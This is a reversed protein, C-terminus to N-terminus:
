AILDKPGVQLIKATESMGELSPQRRNCGYM